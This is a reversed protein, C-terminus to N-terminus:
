KTANANKVFDSTIDKVYPSNGVSAGTVLVIGKKAYSNIYSSLQNMYASIEAKMDKSPHKMIEVEKQQIVTSLDFSYFKPIKIKSQEMKAYGGIMAASIIISVFASIIAHFLLGRQPKSGGDGGSTQGVSEEEREAEKELQEEKDEAV